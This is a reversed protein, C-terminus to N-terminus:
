LQNNQKYWEATLAAGEKFPYKVSFGFERVAKGTDFRWYRYKLYSAVADRSILVNSGSIKALLEFFGALIHILFYPIYIKVPRKGLAKSIVTAIEKSSYIKEEGLIYTESLTGASEAALIMGNVVDWVFALNSAGGGFSM